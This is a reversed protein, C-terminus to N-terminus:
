TEAALLKTLRERLAELGARGQPTLSVGQGEIQDLVANMKAAAAATVRVWNKPSRQDAGKDRATSKRHESTPVGDLAEQRQERLVAVTAGDRLSKWLERQEIEPAAAIEALASKSVAYELAEELIDEPLDLLKLLRNIETLSKKAMRALDRQSYDRTEQMQRYFLAEEIPHLDERQLNEALALEALDGEKIIAHIAKKGLMKHARWRREGAILTFRDGPGAHVVIPQLLTNEKIDDALAQLLAENFKRRPQFPNRDIKDVDVQIVHPLEGDTGYLLSSAKEAQAVALAAM